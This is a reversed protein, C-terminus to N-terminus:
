ECGSTHIQLNGTSITALAELDDGDGDGDIVEVIGSSILMVLHSNSMVALFLKDKGRGPESNDVAVAYFEVPTVPMPNGSIGKVIGQGAFEITNVKVKPSKTPVGSCSLVHMTLGKFHLKQLHDVVNWNGGGAATPSCGPNVVGGFSFHPKGKVKFVTGGGTLWCPGQAPPTCFPGTLEFDVNAFPNDDNVSFPKCTDGNVTAGAPLTSTEVCIVYDAAEEPLDISYAGNGSTTGTAIIPVIPIIKSKATPVVIVTPLVKLVIGEKSKGDPCAVVGSVTWAQVTLASVVLATLGILLKTKM